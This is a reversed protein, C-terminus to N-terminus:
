STSRWAFQRRLQRQLDPLFSLYVVVHVAFWSHAEKLICAFRRYGCTHGFRDLMALSIIQLALTQEDASPLLTVATLSLIRRARRRRLFGLSTSGRSSNVTELQVHCDIVFTFDHGCFEDRAIAVVPDRQIGHGSQGSPGPREWFPINPLLEEHGESSVTRLQACADAAPHAIVQHLDRFLQQQLFPEDNLCHGVFQLQSHFRFM